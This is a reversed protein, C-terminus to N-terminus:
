LMVVDVPLLHGQRPFEIDPTLDAPKAHSAFEGSLQLGGLNVFLRKRMTEETTNPDLGTRIRRREDHLQRTTEGSQLELGLGVRGYGTFSVRLREIGVQVRESSLLQNRRPVAMYALSSNAREVYENEGFIERMVQESAYMIAPTYPRFRVDPLSEYLSQLSSLLLPDCYERGVVPRMGATTSMSQYDEDEVSPKRVAHLEKALKVPNFGPRNVRTVTPEHKRRNM